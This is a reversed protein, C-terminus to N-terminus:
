EDEHRLDDGCATWNSDLARNIFDNCQKRTALGEAPIEDGYMMNAWRAIDRRESESFTFRRKIVIM